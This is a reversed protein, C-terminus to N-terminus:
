GRVDITQIVGLLQRARSAGMFFGAHETEPLMEWPAYDVLLVALADLGKARNVSLLGIEGSRRQLHNVLPKRALSECGHLASDEKRSHRSLVLVQEPRCWGQEFWSSLITQAEAAVDTPRADRIVVEPGDPLSGRQVLGANLETVAASHLGKLFEFIPRTYRVTRFLKIQVPRFGELALLAGPDFGGGGRFAPRQALDFFAGIRANIGEKLLAWYVGWWGPGKWDAPFGPIRTDHDQAEDVIL